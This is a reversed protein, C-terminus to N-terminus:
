GTHSHVTVIGSDTIIQCRNAICRKVRPQKSEWDSGGFRGEQQPATRKEYPTVQSLVFTGALLCRRGDLPRLLTCSHSLRVFLSVSWAVTVDTAIPVIAMATGGLFAATQCLITCSYHHSSKYGINSDYILIFIIAREHMVDLVLIIKHALVSYSSFLISKLHVFVSYFHVSLSSSHFLIESGFYFTLLNTVRIARLPFGMVSSHLTV